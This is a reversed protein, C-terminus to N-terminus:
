QIWKNNMRASGGALLSRSTCVLMKRESGCFKTLSKCGLRGIVLYRPEFRSPRFNSLWCLATCVYASCTRIAMMMAAFFPFMRSPVITPQRRANQRACTDKQVESGGAEAEQDGPCRIPHQNCQVHHRGQKPLPPLVFSVQASGHLAHMGAIQVLESM